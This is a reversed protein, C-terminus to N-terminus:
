ISPTNIDAMFRDMKNSLNKYTELYSAMIESESGATMSPDRISWHFKTPNGNWIPCVEKAAADCVTIIFDIKLSHPSAFEDWSKSRLDETIYNLSKLFKITNPNPKKKPSSGASFAKFKGSGIKNLIAEALISRASNHTCLFLVNKLKSSM